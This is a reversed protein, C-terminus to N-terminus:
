KQSSGSAAIVGKAQCVNTPKGDTLGCFTATLTNAAGVIQQALKSDPKKLQSMVWESSKNSMQPAQYTSGSSTMKGGFDMWPIGGGPNERQMITAVSQPPNELPNGERDRTEYPKFVLYKSKYTAKRFTMTPINAPRDNATSVDPQLGSFSGFRNLALVLSWREMACFPCFEAGVYTVVPKGDKTEAKQTSMPKPPNTVSGAGIKAFTSTPLDKLEGIFASSKAKQQAEQDAKKQKNSAVAWSIAVVALVVVVFGSLLALLKTQRSKRAQEAQLLALREKGSQPPTKKSM